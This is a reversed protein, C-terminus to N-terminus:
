VFKTGVAARVPFFVPPYTRSGANATCPEDAAYDQAKVRFRAGTEIRGLAVLRGNAPSVVRAQSIARAGPRLPRTFFADITPYAGQRPAVDTMDVGYLRVYAREVVRSIRSPLPRDCLRGVAHSLRIRPLVRLVQIGLWTALTM